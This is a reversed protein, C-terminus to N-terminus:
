LFQRPRVRRGGRAHGTTAKQKARSVGAFFETRYYSALGPDKWPQPMMLLRWRAGDGITDGWETLLIDPVEVTLTPRCALRGTLDDNKPTGMLTIRSQSPQNFDCGPSLPRDGDKLELIRLAEGDSPVLLQPYGTKAAVVVIGTHVWVDAEDCLERAMRKIQEAVSARPADPIDLQIQDILDDQTM